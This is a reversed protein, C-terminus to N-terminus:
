KPTRNSKQFINTNVFDIGATGKGGSPAVSWVHGDGYILRAKHSKWEFGVSLLDAKPRGFIRSLIQVNARPKFFYGKGNMNLSFFLCVLGWNNVWKLFLNPDASPINCIVKVRFLVKTVNVSGTPFMRVHVVQRFQPKKPLWFDVSTAVMVVASSIPIRALSNSIFFRYIIKWPPERKRLATSRPNRREWTCIPPSIM